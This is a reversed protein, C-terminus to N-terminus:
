IYFIAVEISFPQHVSLCDVKGIQDSLVFGYQNLIVLLHIYPFTGLVAGRVGVLSKCSCHCLLRYYYSLVPEPANVCVCM